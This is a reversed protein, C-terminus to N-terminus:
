GEKPTPASQEHLATAGADTIRFQRILPNENAVETAHGAAVLREYEEVIGWHRPPRADGHTLRELCATLLDM